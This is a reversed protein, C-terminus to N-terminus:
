KHLSQEVGVTLNDRVLFGAFGEFLVKFVSIDATEVVGLV